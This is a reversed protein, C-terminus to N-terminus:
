PVLRDINIARYARTARIRLAEGELLTNYTVRDVEVMEEGVLIYYRGDRSVEKAALTGEIKRYPPLVDLASWAASIAIRWMSKLLALPAVKLQRDDPSGSDYARRTAKGM